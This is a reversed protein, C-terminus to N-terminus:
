RGPPTTSPSGSRRPSSRTARTARRTTAPERRPGLRAGGPQRRGEPLAANDVPSEFPEYHTPMPGDLLGSPSYLWARGDAMMIFPDDGSIADMGKPTTPRATTRASTPRSTPCTTARGSRRSRTGGSTASASRGRSATRTPRRATTSSAATPPGPGAGSRRSGAARPTTSTAPTAGARRTSATPSAARTSGAAARPRGTTRWSRRLRQPLGTARGRLRQDGEARGRRRARAHEGHEPYDWKLNRLPWDKDDTSDAYHAM